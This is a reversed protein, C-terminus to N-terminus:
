LFSTGYITRTRIQFERGSGGVGYRCSEEDFVGFVINSVGSSNSKVGLLNNSVGSLIAIM